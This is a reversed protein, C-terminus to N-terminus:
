EVKQRWPRCASHTCGSIILFGSSVLFGCLYAIEILASFNNPSIIIYFYSEIQLGAICQPTVITLMNRIVSGRRDGWLLALLGRHPSRAYLGM